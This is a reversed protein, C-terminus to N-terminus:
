NVDVFMEIYNILRSSNWNNVIDKFLLLFLSLKLLLNTEGYCCKKYKLQQM